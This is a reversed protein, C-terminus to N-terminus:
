AARWDIFTSCLNILQSSRYSEVFMSERGTTLSSLKGLFNTSITAIKVRSSQMQMQKKTYFSLAALALLTLLVSGVLLLLQLTEPKRNKPETSDATSSADTSLLDQAQKGVFTWVLAHPIGGAFATAAFRWTSVETLALGYCKLTNPLGSLQVLLLLKWDSSQLVECMGRFVRFTELYSRIFTRLLHRGVTFALVGGSTKGVVSVATGVPVGFLSGAAVELLSCPFGLPLTVCILLPLIAMGPVRHAKIWSDIAHLYIQVRAFRHVLAVVAIVVALAAMRKLCRKRRSPPVRPVNSLVKVSVKAM